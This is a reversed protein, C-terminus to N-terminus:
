LPAYGSALLAKHTEPGVTALRPWDPTQNRFWTLQRKAYNRTAQQAEAIAVELPIEGALFHGFERVGVAKLIPLDPDLNRALLARAEEVGGSAAMACLRADCQRYLTARDPEIVIGRWASPKLLPATETQWAGLAKGTHRLVALARVLRQHDGAEIKAESAPDGAGLAARVASEGGDIWLTEADQRAATPIDPIPALGETLVRFYLGAGGVVIAPRGRAAIEVLVAEAARLWRGVSWGEAADSVGYLHHPARATEAESPRASLIRLDAYIQM